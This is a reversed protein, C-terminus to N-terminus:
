AVGVPAIRLSGDANRAVAHQHEKRAAADDVLLREVAALRDEPVLGRRRLLGTLAEIWCTFYTSEDDIQGHREYRGIVEILAAQFEKFSFWGREALGLTMGFARAMWPETFTADGLGDPQELAALLWNYPTTM